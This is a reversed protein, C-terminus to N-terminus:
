SHPISRSKHITQGDIEEVGFEVEIFERNKPWWFVFWGVGRIRSTYADFFMPGEKRECLWGAAEFYDSFIPASDTLDCPTHGPRHLKM